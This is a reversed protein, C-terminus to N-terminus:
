KLNRLESMFYERDGEEVIEQGAQNALEIYERSKEADGAVAYARALGEYAVAIDFDAIENERCITLCRQAHYIAAEFRGLVSYVRSVQWEGREWQLATGIEGWHYRSAHAAHIMRDNEEQTRDEKDLLDWTLSFLSAAFKKHWDQDPAKNEASM